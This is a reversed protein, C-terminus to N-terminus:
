KVEVLQGSIYKHILSTIFTQYPIGELAAKKQVSKLDFENIRLSIRQNKKFHEEAAKKYIGLDEKTTEWEGNEISLLLDQEEKDLKM